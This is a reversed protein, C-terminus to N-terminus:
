PSHEAQRPHADMPRTRRYLHSGVYRNGYTVEPEIRQIGTADDVDDIFFAAGRLSEPKGVAGQRFMCLGSFLSERNFPISVIIRDPVVDKGERTGILHQGSQPM